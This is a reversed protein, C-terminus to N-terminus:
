AIIGPIISSLTITKTTGNYSYTVEYTVCETYTPLSNIRGNSDVLNSNSKVSLTAQSYNKFLEMQQRVLEVFEYWIELDYELMPQPCWKGSFFHHGVLRNLPLNYKLLLTACLQASYQWTLWLDSGKACSSEIGISNKNGGTSAIYNYTTNLYHGSIYWEKGVLKVALGMGNLRTGSTSNKIPTKIGKLYFYGDSGLKVDTSYIDSGIQDTTIGTAHWTMTKSSGAHWAGYAENQCYWVGDNGTSYHWSAQNAGNNCSQNYSALNKAGNSASGSMDAAYHLTIFEVGETVYTSKNNPNSLYYDSHVVYDEFLIKSVSGIVDTYYFGAETAIGVIIEECNYINANNSEVLLKELGTTSSKIVTVYFTFNITSDTADFVVIEALGESVGRVINEDVTAINPTKSEWKLTGNKNSLYTAELEIEEGEVVWSKDQFSGIIKDVFEWKAFLTINGSNELDNISEYKRNNGDFWGLFDYGIKSALPLVSENTIVQTYIDQTVNVDYFTMNVLNSSTATTFAKDFVVIGGVLAKSSSFNDDYSGSYSGSLTIVVDADEPWSSVTGSYLVSIIRYLGSHEEKQLYVRTSFKAKPDNAKTSVFVHNAYNNNNWFDGNYSSIILTTLKTGYKTYLEESVGGDYDFTIQAYVGDVLKFKPYVKVNGNLKTANNIKSSESYDSSLYWGEFIANNLTANPLVSGYVSSDFVSNKALEESYIEWFGNANDYISYDSTKYTTVGAAYSYTKNGLFAIMEMNITAADATVYGNEIIIDYQSVDLGASERVSKLYVLLWSWKARMENDTFFTSNGSSAAFLNYGTSTNTEFYSLTYSSGKISQIDKILDNILDNKTDYNTLLVGDGLIYEITTKTPIEEWKAVLNYNKNSISSVLENNEYWGIFNYGEKTPTPLTVKENEEFQKVATTPLVGGDTDYNITYITPIIVIEEWKAVLNYNKNTVSLVLQNNEYWGIFNYGEKTPTPLTVKENEEFQKVATTPLDGGDTNYTITYLTPKIPEWVALLEHDKNSITTVPENNEYWGVFNYGEKTPTPLTVKSGDEFTRIVNDPLIGGDTHYLIIYTETLKQETIEVTLTAKLNKNEKVTVTVIVTGCNLAELIGDEDVKALNNSVEYNLTYKEGKVTPQVNLSDGVSMSVKDYEYSIEITKHCSTFLFIMGIFLVIYLIKKM